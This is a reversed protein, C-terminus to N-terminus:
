IKDLPQKDVRLDETVFLMARICMKYLPDLFMFADGKTTRRLIPSVKDDRGDILDALCNAVGGIQESLKNNYFIKRVAEELNATKFENERIQGLAYIVQNRRQIKTDRENLQSEVVHYASNLTSKLWKRDAEGLSERRVEATKQSIFALALCYDQLSQPICDSVWTVHKILDELLDPSIRYDLENFGKIVVSRAEGESLRSVEEIEVLRNAITRGSPTKSFYDKVGAPIGVILLRVRQKLFETDDALTIIDALEEMLDPKSFIRELNDLVIFAQRDGAKKRFQSIAAHLPDDLTIAYKKNHELAGKAAGPIGLEAAKKEDYGTVVATGPEQVAKLLEGAISGNRSAHALNVIKYYIDHRSFLSKYLWTKGCGSEGYIVLNETRRLKEVFDAELAARPAYMRPNFEGRPTFVEEPTPRELLGM